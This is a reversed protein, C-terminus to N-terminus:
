CAIFARHLLQVSLVGTLTGYLSNRRRADQTTQAETLWQAVTNPDFIDTERLASQSMADDRLEDLGQWVDALPADYGFKMRQRVAPPLDRAFAKWLVYKEKLAFSKLMPPVSCAYDIMSNSLFPVRLEVSNAMSNRDARALIYNPLRSKMELYISKNFDDIGAYTTKLPQCIDYMPSGEALSARYADKFLGQRRRENFQWSIFWAPVTGLEAITPSFDQTLAEAMMLRDGPAAYYRALAAKLLPQRFRGLVRLALARRIQNLTFQFYGGFLEDSGEGSLVVKVGDDRVLGSLGIMPIDLFSFQPQEIHYLVHQFLAANM